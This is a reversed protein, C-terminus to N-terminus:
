KERPVMVVQMPVFDSFCVTASSYGHAFTLKSRRSSSLKKVTHLHAFIGRTDKPAGGGQFIRAAQDGASLKYSRHPRFPTGPSGVTPPGDPPDNSSPCRMVSPSQSPHPFTLQDPLGGQGPASSITKWLPAQDLQPLLMIVGSLFNFNSNAPCCTGGNGPPFSNHIEHYSHIAIGFQKLNNKCQARRAAERANQVAPLLLAVLIAIIAIVVLLEILTFGSRKMDSNEKGRKTTNELLAIM